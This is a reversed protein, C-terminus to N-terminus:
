LYLKELMRTGIETKFIKEKINKISHEDMKDEFINVLFDSEVLIQFDIGDISQYHHHHGILFLIREKIAADVDIDNLLEKAVRAGEIEQWYGANSNHKREAEHIGIDHLLAAIDIIIQTKADCQEVVGIHHAFSFVKIFHNIRKIDNGNYTMALDFVTEILM